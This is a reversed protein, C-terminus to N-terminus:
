RKSLRKTTIKNIKSVFPLKELKSYDLKHLWVIYIIEFVGVTNVLMMAVFWFKHGLRASKYLALGKWLLSWALLLYFEPQVDM